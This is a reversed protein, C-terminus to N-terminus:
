KLHKSSKINVAEKKRGKSSKLDDIDQGGVNGMM